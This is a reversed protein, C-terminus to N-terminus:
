ITIPYEIWKSHNSLNVQTLIKVGLHFSIVKFDDYQNVLIFITPLIRIWYIVSSWLARIPVLPCLSFQEKPPREKFM